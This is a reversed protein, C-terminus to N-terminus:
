FSNASVEFRKPVYATEFDNEIYREYFYDHEQIFKKILENKRGVFNTRSIKSM